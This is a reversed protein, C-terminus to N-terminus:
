LERQRLAEYLLITSAMAVNLSEAGGRMPIRVRHTVYQEAEPSVGRAENGVIFWSSARYDMDYCSAAADLAASVLQVGRERAASLVEGLDTEVIPLHFLSGMTSRVTKPNYLDACGRGLVVGTAGVADASRIITGLNGPDQVGDAVIVLSNTAELLRDALQTFKPLVAFIGQPQVTDTCKAMIEPSVAIWEIGPREAAAAVVEEPIGKGRDYVVCEPVIVAQNLAGVVLHPGEVIFMGLKDRGKKESLSAWSKVRPNSVSTIEMGANMM